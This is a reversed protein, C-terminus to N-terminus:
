RAGRRWVGEAEARRLLVRLVEPVPDVGHRVRRSDEEGSFVSAGAGDELRLEVEAPVGDDQVSVRVRARWEAPAPELVVERFLDTTRLTRALREHVISARPLESVPKVAGGDPEVWVSLAITPRLTDDARALPAREPWHDRVADCASAAAALAVLM